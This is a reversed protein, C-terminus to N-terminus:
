YASYSEWELRFVAKPDKHKFKLGLQVGDFNESKPKILLYPEEAILEKTDGSVVYLKVEEIFTSVRQNNQSSNSIFKVTFSYLENADTKITREIRYYFIDFGMRSKKQVKQWNYAKGNADTHIVTTDARGQAGAFNSTTAAYLIIFLLSIINKKM